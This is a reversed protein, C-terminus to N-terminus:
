YDRKSAKHDKKPRFLVMPVHSYKQGPLADELLLSSVDIQGCEMYLGYFYM